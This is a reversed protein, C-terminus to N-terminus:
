TSKGQDEASNTVVQDEPLMVLRSWQLVEKVVDTQIDSLVAIASVTAPGQFFRGIVGTGPAPDDPNITFEGGAFSPHGVLYDIALGAGVQGTCGPQALWVHLLTVKLGPEPSVKGVITVKGTVRGGIEELGVSRINSASSM